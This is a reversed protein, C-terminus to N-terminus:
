GNRASCTGKPPTKTEKPAAKTAPKKAAAKTAQKTAKPAAPKQAVPKTVKNQATKRTSTRKVTETAASKKPAMTYYFNIQYLNYFNPSNKFFHNFLAAKNQFIPARESILNRLSPALGNVTLKGRTLQRMETQRAVANRNGRQQREVVEACTVIGIGIGVVAVERM